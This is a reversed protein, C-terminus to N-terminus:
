KQRWTWGEVALAEETWAAVEGQPGACYLDLYDGEERIWAVMGGASRLTYGCSRPSPCRCSRSRPVAHGLPCSRDAAAALVVGAVGAVITWTNM